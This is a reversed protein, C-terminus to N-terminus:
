AHMQKSAPAGEDLIRVDIFPPFNQIRELDNELLTVGGPGNVERFGAFKYTIYMMRNRENSVFEALLRVNAQRARKMLYSLMVTGVGRAMVRCSMLLLKITWADRGLAVLALGIKGYTGYCDDLTAALLLHDPSRSLAELEESKTNKSSCPV